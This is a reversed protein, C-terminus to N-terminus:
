AGTVDGNVFTAKFSTHVYLRKGGPSPLADLQGLILTVWSLRPDGYCRIPSAALPAAPPEAAAFRRNVDRYRIQALNRHSIGYVHKPKSKLVRIVWIGLLM